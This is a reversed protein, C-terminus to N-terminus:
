KSERYQVPTMGTHKKFFRGFFSPNPFNLEESLQLITMDTTKLLYKASAILLENIWVFATRGTREKIVTSLYKPTLCMKSAYFELTKERKHHELLLRFFRYVMDDQRSSATDRVSETEAYIRAYIGGIESLLAYLMGKIMPILLPHDRRRYQKAIFSHFELLSDCEDQTIGICSSMLLHKSIDINSATPMDTLFDPSFILFEMFLDDSKEVIETVFLPLITLITNKELDYERFNVKIRGRGQICIAFAVGDLVFPHDPSVFPIKNTQNSIVFNKIAFPDIYESIDALQFKTLKMDIYLTDHDSLM